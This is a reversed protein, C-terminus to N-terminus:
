RQRFQGCYATLFTNRDRTSLPRDQSLNTTAFMADDAHPSSGRLFLAHGIQKTLLGRLGPGAQDATMVPSIGIITEARKLVRETPEWTVNTSARDAGNPLTAHTRFEVIVDAGNESNTRAFLTTGAVTEWRKSAETWIAQASEGGPLTADNRFHVRIPFAPWRLLANDRGTQPDDADAYNPTIFTSACQPMDLTALSTQGGCGTVLTASVLM